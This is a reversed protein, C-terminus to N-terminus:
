NENQNVEEVAYYGFVCTKANFVKLINFKLGHKIDGCVVHNKLKLM